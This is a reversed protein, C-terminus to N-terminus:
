KSGGMVRRVEGQMVSRSGREAGRRPGLGARKRLELLREIEPAQLPVPGGLLRARSLVRAYHEILEARLYAEELDRGVTLVGNGALLLGDARGLALEVADAVADEKPLFRPLLPIELGLSVVVEPLAVPEIPIQALSFATAEPSHQHIVAGVDSHRYAGVHLSVESPPRGKGVPAGSLECTVVSDATVARKSVATPSILFRGQGPLRVSVNGDHNAVWGRAHLLQSYEAVERRLPHVPRM